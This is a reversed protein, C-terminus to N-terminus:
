YCEILTRMSRSDVIFWVFWTAEETWFAYHTDALTLMTSQAAAFSRFARIEGHLHKNGDM